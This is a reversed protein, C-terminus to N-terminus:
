GQQGRQEQRVIEQVRQHSLGAYEAIDRYTEGSARALMIMEVLNAQAKLLQARAKAVNKLDRQSLHRSVAAGGLKM